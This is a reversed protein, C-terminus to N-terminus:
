RPGQLLEKQGAVKYNKQNYNIIGLGTMFNLTSTNDFNNKIKAQVQAQRDLWPNDFRNVQNLKPDTTGIINGITGTPSYGSMNSLQNIGPILQDLYDSKDGIPAGTSVSNGTALEIPAKLYPSVMGALNQTIDGNFIGALSEIPSGLNYGVGGSSGLPGFVAEDRIFSPYVKSIDFQDSLSHPDGGSAVSMAYAAKPLTSIRGPNMVMAELIM